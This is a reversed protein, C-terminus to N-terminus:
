ILSTFPLPFWKGLEASTFPCSQKCGAIQPSAPSLATIKEVWLILQIFVFSFWSNISRYAILSTFIFRVWSVIKLSVENASKNKRLEQLFTPYSLCTLVTDVCLCNWHASELTHQRNCYPEASNDRSWPDSSSVIIRPWSIDSCYRIERKSIFFLLLNQKQCKKAKKHYDVTCFYLFFQSLLLPSHCLHYETALVSHGTDKMIHYLTLVSSNFLDKSINEKQIQPDTRSSIRHSWRPQHQQKTDQLGM